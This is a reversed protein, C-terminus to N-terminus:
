RDPSRAVFVTGERQMICLGRAKLTTAVADRVDADLGFLPPADLAPFPPVDGERAAVAFAALNASMNFAEPTM